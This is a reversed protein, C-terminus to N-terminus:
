VCVLEHAIYNITNEGDAKLGKITDSLIERNIQRKNKQVPMPCIQCHYLGNTQTTVGDLSKGCKYCIKPAYRNRLLVCELFPMSTGNLIAMAVRETKEEM